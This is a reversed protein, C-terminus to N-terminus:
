ISHIFEILRRVQNAWSKRNEFWGKIIKFKEVKEDYGWGLVEDIKQVFAIPTDNNPIELVERYESSFSPVWTSVIPKGWSLYQPIKSPYNVVNDGVKPERVSLLIDATRCIRNVEDDPLFGKIEVRPDNNFEAWRQQVDCKGCFVFRVDQRKCLKVVEKMFNLGRWYDLAGTHVITFTKETNKSLSEGQFEQAGGDMHLLPIDKNPFNEKMWWSLFVIGDAPSVSRKIWGWDDRRPDDGDLIIPVCKIGYRRAEKMAAVHYPHLTNYCILADYKNQKVLRRVARRYAISLYADKIGVVNPYAIRECSLFDNFWRKDNNQWFVKGAPWRQEPCHSIVDVDAIQSLAQLLERSWKAAAQNVARKESLACESIFPGCYLIRM